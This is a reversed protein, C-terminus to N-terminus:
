VRGILLCDQSVFWEHGMSDPATLYGQFFAGNRELMTERAAILMVHSAGVAPTYGACLLTFFANVHMEADVIVLTDMPVSSRTNDIIVNDDYLRYMDERKSLTEITSSNLHFERISVLDNNSEATFFSTEIARLTQPDKVTGWCIAGPENNYGFVNSPLRKSTTMLVGLDNVKSGCLFAGDYPTTKFYRDDTYNSFEKNIPNLHSLHIKFAMQCVNFNYSEKGKVCGYDCRQGTYGKNYVDCHDGVEDWDVNGEDDMYQQLYEETNRSCGVCNEHYFEDVSQEYESDVHYINDPMWATIELTDTFGYSIYKARIPLPHVKVQPPTTQFIASM